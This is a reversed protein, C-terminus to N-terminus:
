SIAIPFFFFSNRTKKLPGLDREWTFGNDFESEEDSERYLLFRSEEIKQFPGFDRKRAFVM